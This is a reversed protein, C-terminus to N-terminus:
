RSVTRLQRVVIKSKLVKKDTPLVNKKYDNVATVGVLVEGLYPTKTWNGHTKYFVGFRPATNKNSM